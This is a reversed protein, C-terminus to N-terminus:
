YYSYDKINDLVSLLLIRINKIIDLSKIIIDVIYNINFLYNKYYYDKYYLTKM